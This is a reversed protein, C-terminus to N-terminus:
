ECANSQENRKATKSKIKVKIICTLTPRLSSELPHTTLQAIEVIQQQDVFQATSINSINVVGSNTHANM